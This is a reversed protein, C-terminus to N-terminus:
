LTSNYLLVQLQTGEDIAYQTYTYTYFVQESFVHTKLKLMEQWPFSINLHLGYVLCVSLTLEKSTHSVKSISKLINRVKKNKYCWM